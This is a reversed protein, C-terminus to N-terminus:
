ISYNVISFTSILLVHEFFFILPGSNLNNEFQQAKEEEGSVPMQNGYFRNRPLTSVHSEERAHASSRMGM